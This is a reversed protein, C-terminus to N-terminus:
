LHRFIMSRPDNWNPVKDRQKLDEIIEAGQLSCLEMLFDYCHGVVDIM